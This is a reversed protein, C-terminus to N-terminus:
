KIELNMFPKTEVPMPVKRWIIKPNRPRM